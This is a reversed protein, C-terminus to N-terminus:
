EKVQDTSIVTLHHAVRERLQQLLQIHEDLEALKQQYRTIAVECLPAGQEEQMLCPALLRIDALSFGLRLLKRIRQVQEVAEPGYSRYGNDQRQARLVGM